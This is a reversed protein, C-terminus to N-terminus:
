FTKKITNLEGNIAKLLEPRDKCERQLISNMQLGLPILDSDLMKLLAPVYKELVHRAGNMVDEATDMVSLYGEKVLDDSLFWNRVPGDGADPLRYSEEETEVREFVLEDCLGGSVAQIGNEGM